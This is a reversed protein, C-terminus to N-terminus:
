PSADPVPAPEDLLTELVGEMELGLLETYGGIAEDGIFIQPITRQGTVDALWRRKDLDGDVDVVQYRVGKRDLLSRARRCFPCWEASYVRVPKM